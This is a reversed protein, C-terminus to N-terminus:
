RRHGERLKESPILRGEWRDLVPQISGAADQRANEGVMSAVAATGYVASAQSANEGVLSPQQVTASAAASTRQFDLSKLWYGGAAGIIAAAMLGCVLAVIRFSFPKLVYTAQM